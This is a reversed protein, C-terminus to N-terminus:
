IKNKSIRNMSPTFESAITSNLSIAEEKISADNQRNKIKEAKNRPM